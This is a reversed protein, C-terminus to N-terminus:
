KVTKPPIPPVCCNLLLLNLCRRVPFIKNPPSFMIQGFSVQQHMTKVMVAANKGQCPDRCDYNEFISKECSLMESDVDYFSLKSTTSAQLIVSYSKAWHACFRRTMARLVQNFNVSLKALVQTIFQSVFTTKQRRNHATTRQLLHRALLARFDAHHDPELCRPM